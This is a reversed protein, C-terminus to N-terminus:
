CQNSLSRGRGLKGERRVGDASDLPIRGRTIDLIQIIRLTM